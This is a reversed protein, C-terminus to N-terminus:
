VRDPRAEGTGDGRFTSILRRGARKRFDPPRPRTSRFLLRVALVLASSIVPVTEPRGGPPPADIGELEPAPEFSPASEVRPPADSHRGESWLQRIAEDVAGSAAQVDPDRAERDLPKGDLRALDDVRRDDGPERLDRAAVAEVVAGPKGLAADLGIVFREVPAPDAMSPSEPAPDVSGPVAVTPTGPVGQGETPSYLATVTSPERLGWEGAVAGSDPDGSWFVAILDLASDGSPM